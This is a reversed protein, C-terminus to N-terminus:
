CQPESVECSPFLWLSLLLSVTRYTTLHNLHWTTVTQLRFTLRTSPVNQTCWPKPEWADTCSMLNHVVRCLWLIFENLVIFIPIFMFRALSSVPRSHLRFGLSFLSLWAALHKIKLLNSWYSFFLRPLHLKIQLDLGNAARAQTAKPETILEAWACSFMKSMKGLGSNVTVASPSLLWRTVNLKDSPQAASDQERERERKREREQERGRERHRERERKGAGQM